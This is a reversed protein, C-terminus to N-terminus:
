YCPHMCEKSNWPTHCRQKLNYIKQEINLDCIKYREKINNQSKQKKIKVIKRHFYLAFFDICLTGRLYIRISHIVYQILIDYKQKPPRPIINYKLYTRLNKVEDNLYFLFSFNYILYKNYLVETFSRYMGRVGSDISFRSYYGLTIRQFKM